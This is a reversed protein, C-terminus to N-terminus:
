ATFLLHMWSFHIKEFAKPYEGKESHLSGLWILVDINNAQTELIEEYIIQASNLDNNQFRIAAKNLKWKTLLSKIM